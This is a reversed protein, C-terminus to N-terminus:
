DAYCPMENEVQVAVLVQHAPEKQAARALLAQLALGDREACKAAFASIVPVDSHITGDEKLAPFGIKEDWIYRPVYNSQLNRWTGFWVIILHMNRAKAAEILGDIM